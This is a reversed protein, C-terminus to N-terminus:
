KRFGPTADVMGIISNLGQTAMFTLCFLTIALGLYLCPTMVGKLARVISSYRAYCIPYFAYSADCTPYLSPWRNTQIGACIRSAKM